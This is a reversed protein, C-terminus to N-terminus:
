YDPLLTRASRSRRWQVSLQLPTAEAVAEDACACPVLPTYKHAPVHVTIIMCALWM